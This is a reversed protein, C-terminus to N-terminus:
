SVQSAEAGRGQSVPEIVIEDLARGRTLPNQQREREAQVMVRIRPDRNRLNLGQEVAKRVIRAADKGLPDFHIVVDNGWRHAAQKMAAELHHDGTGIVELHPHATTLGREIFADRGQSLEYKLTDMALPISYAIGGDPLRRKSLKGLEVARDIAIPDHTQASDKQRAPTGGIAAVAQPNRKLAETLQTLADSIQESVGEMHEIQAQMRRHADEQRERDEDGVSNRIIEESPVEHDVAGNNNL